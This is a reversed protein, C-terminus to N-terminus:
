CLSAAYKEVHPKRKIWLRIVEVELAVKREAVARCINLAVDRTWVAAFRDHDGEIGPAPIALVVDFVALNAALRPTQV